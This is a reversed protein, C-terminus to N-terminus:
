RTFQLIKAAAILLPVLTLKDKIKALVQSAYPRGLHTKDKMVAILEELAQRGFVELASSMVM